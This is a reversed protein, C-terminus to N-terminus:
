SHHQTDTTGDGTADSQVLHEYFSACVSCGLAWAGGYRAPRERIWQVIQRAGGRSGTATFSQAWAAGYREWRCRACSLHGGSHRATHAMATEACATSESTLGEPGRRRHIKHAPTDRCEIPPGARKGVRVPVDVRQAALERRRGKTAQKPAGCRKNPPGARKGVRVPADVRQAALERRRGKTAQKPAGCRENPPGAWKAVSSQVVGARAVLYSAGPRTYATKLSLMVHRSAGPRLRSAMACGVVCGM